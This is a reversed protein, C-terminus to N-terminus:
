IVWDDKSHGSCTSVNGLWLKYSFRHHQASAPTITPGFFIDLM